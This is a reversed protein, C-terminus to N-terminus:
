RTQLFFGDSFPLFKAAAFYNGVVGSRGTFIDSSSGICGDKYFGGPSGARSKKDISTTRNDGITVYNM